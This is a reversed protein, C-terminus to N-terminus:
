AQAADGSSTEGEIVSLGRNAEALERLHGELLTRFANIFKQKELRLKEIDWRLDALVQRSEKVAQDAQQQAASIIRAAERHAADRTEEAARQAMVLTEKMLKDQDHFSDLEKQQSNVTGELIEIRALLNAMEDAAARTLSEVESRDFGRFRVKFNPREVDIPKLRDM